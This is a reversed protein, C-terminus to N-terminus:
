FGDQMAFLPYWVWGGGACFIDQHAAPPELIFNLNQIMLISAEEYFIAYGIQLMLLSHMCDIRASRALISQICLRRMSWFRSGKHVHDVMDVVPETGLEELTALVCM